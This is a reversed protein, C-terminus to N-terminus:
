LSSIILSLSGVGWIVGAEVLNLKLDASIEPFLVSLGMGPVALVMANTLAGLILVLWKTKSNSSNNTM